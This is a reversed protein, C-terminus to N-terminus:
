GKLGDRPMLAKLHEGLKTITDSKAIVRDISFMSALTENVGDAHMTFLIIKLNPMALKLERAAETGSMGPLTLDLLIVDPQLEKAREIAEAGNAAEGCIKFQTNSEIYSRLLRRMNSNDDVVLIGAM